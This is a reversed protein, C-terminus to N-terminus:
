KELELVIAIANQGGTQASFDVTNGGKFVVNPILEGRLTNQVKQAFTSGSANSIAKNLKDYDLEQKSVVIAIRDKKGTADPYLSHDNPFLRTGTIGCYPSHKATYPFLVFSSGDTEESFIYTYCALTNTIEVKFDEDIAVPRKTSFTIGGDYDFGIYKGTSNVVLGINADLSNSSTAATGMPFLGYAEKNFQVFDEYRVWCFGGKGWQTGWSNMLQFAGGEYADDYGIICMAHGGFGNQKYDARTPRWLKKGSMDSMFTGGVMMGIVVPAGQAINQRIALLDTGYDDGNNSLRNYGKTRFDTAAQKQSSTPKKSCSREDYAFKTYPLAGTERMVQMAKIMYTGQCGELAIQNYVYSPSFTVKNPNEGTARAQLITRAAYASSWGVCSGQTGQNKPTPCFEKLSARVPLENRGEALAEFVQAKDYESEKMDLGTSKFLNAVPNSSEQVDGAGNEDGGGKSFFWFAALGLLVVVIGVKPNKRFLGIVMPLLAAGMGAGGGGGSRKSGRNSSSRQPSKGRNSSGTPKDKRIRIPM